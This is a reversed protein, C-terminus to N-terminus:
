TLHYGVTQQMLFSAKTTLTFPNAWILGVSDPESKRKQLVGKPTGARVHAVGEDSQLEAEWAQITGQEYLSPGDGPLM